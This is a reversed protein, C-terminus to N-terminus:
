TIRSAHCARAAEIFRVDSAGDTLSVQEQSFRRRSLTQGFRGATEANRGSEGMCVCAASIRDPGRLVLFLTLVGSITGQMKRSTDLDGLAIREASCHIM